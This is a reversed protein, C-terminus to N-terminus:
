FCMATAVHQSRSNSTTVLNRYCQMCCAQGKRVVSDHQNITLYSPSSTRPEIGLLHLSPINKEVAGHGSRSHPRGLRRDLPCQPSKGVSTLHGPRWVSFDGRDLASTLFALLDVQVVYMCVFARTCVTWPDQLKYRCCPVSYTM